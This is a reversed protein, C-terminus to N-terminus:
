RKGEQCDGRRAALLDRIVIPNRFSVPVPAASEVLTELEKLLDWLMEGDAKSLPKIARFAQSLRSAPIGALVALFDNTRRIL